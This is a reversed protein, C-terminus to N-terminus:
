FMFMLFVRKTEMKTCWKHKRGRRDAESVSVLVLLVLLQELSRSQEKFPTHLADTQSHSLGQDPVLQSLSLNEGTFPDGLLWATGRCPYPINGLMVVHPPPM